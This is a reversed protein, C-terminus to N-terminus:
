SHIVDRSSALIQLRIEIPMAIAGSAHLRLMNSVGKRLPRYQNKYLEENRGLKSSNDSGFMYFFLYDNILAHNIPLASATESLKLILDKFLTFKVFESSTYYFERSYESNYTMPDIFAFAAKVERLLPNTPAASITKPVSILRSTSELYKRYLFERRTLLDSLQSM